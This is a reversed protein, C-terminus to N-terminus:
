FNNGSFKKAPNLPNKGAPNIKFFTEPSKGSKYDSFNGPDRTSKASCPTRIHM